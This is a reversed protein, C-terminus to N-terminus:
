SSLFTAINRVAGEWYKDHMPFDHGAGEITLLQAHPIRKNIELADAYAVLRDLTGQGCCNTEAERRDELRPSCM